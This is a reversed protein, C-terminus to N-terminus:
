QDADTKLYWTISMDIRVRLTDNPHETITCLVGCNILPTRPHEKSLLLLLHSVEQIEHAKAKSASEPRDVQVLFAEKSHVEQLLFRGSSSLGSPCILARTSMPGTGDFQVIFGNTVRKLTGCASSLIPVPTKSGPLKPIWDTTQNTTRNGQLEREICLIDLPLSEVSRLLAQTRRHPEISLIEGASKHLLAAFIAPVDKPYSTTRKALLNWVTIFDTDPVYPLIEGAEFCENGYSWNVRKLNSEQNPMSFLTSATGLCSHRYYMKYDAFKVYIAPTLAAEQLPWSRAMWPSADVLMHARATRWECKHKDDEEEGLNYYSIKSLAPDLVLVNAAGAYIRGM